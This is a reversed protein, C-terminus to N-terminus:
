KNGRHLDTALSSSPLKEFLTRYVQVNELVRMVYNRTESFPISEVFDVPDIEGKRPDGFRKTWQPIRGPGANYSAITMIYSGDQLMLLDRLHADGLQVNYVADTSLKSKSYRVNNQKAILRGTAPMIQMLGRAGVRSKAGKYFESEQRSLGYLFALEVGENLKKFKPLANKPYAYLGIPRGVFLAKKATRVSLDYRGMQIGLEALAALQSKDKLRYALTSFFTRYYDERKSRRLVKIVKVLENQNFSDLATKHVTPTQPLPLPKQALGLKQRALQGYYTTSHHSALNYHKKASETNGQRELAQAYWYEGRAVSIPRKATKRLRNFHIAARAPQKLRTLALWGAFFEGDLYINYHQPGAGHNKVIDYITWNTVKSGKSMSLRALSNRLLWSRKLSATHQTKPKIGKLTNAASSYKKKKYLGYALAYRYSPDKKLRTSLKTKKRALARAAARIIKKQNGSLFVMDVRAHKVNRKYIHRRAREFSDSKRIYKKFEKYTQKALKGGTGGQWATRILKTIIQDDAKTKNTKNLLMRAYAIRGAHTTPHYRMFYSNVKKATEADKGGNKLSSSAKYLKLEAQAKIIGMRPWHGHKDMFAKIDEFTAGSKSKQVYMWRLFLDDLSSSTKKTLSNGYSFKNKKAADIAKDFLAADGSLKAFSPSPAVLVLLLLGILGILSYSSRM